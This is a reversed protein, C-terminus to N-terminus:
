TLARQLGSPKGFAHSARSFLFRLLMARRPRPRPFFLGARFALPASRWAHLLRSCLEGLFVRFASPFASAPRRLLREFRFPTWESLIPLDSLPPREFPLLRFPVPPTLTPRCSIGTRCSAATEASNTGQPEAAAIARSPQLGVAESLRMGGAQAGIEACRIASISGLRQIFRAPKDVVRSFRRTSFFTLRTGASIPCRVRSPCLAKTSGARACRNRCAPSRCASPGEAVIPARRDAVPRM